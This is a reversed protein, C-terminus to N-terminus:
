TIKNEKMLNDERLFHASISRHLQWCSGLLQKNSEHAGRLAARFARSISARIWDWQAVIQSGGDVEPELSGELGSRM